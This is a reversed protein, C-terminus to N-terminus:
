DTLYKRLIHLLIYELQLTENTVAVLIYALYKNKLAVM